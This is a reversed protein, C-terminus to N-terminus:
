TQTSTAAMSSRCAKRFNGISTRNAPDREILGLVAQKFIGLPKLLERATAPEEWPAPQEGLIMAITQVVPQSCEVRTLVSRSLGSRVKILFRKSLDFTTNAM